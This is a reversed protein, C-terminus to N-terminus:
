IWIRPEIVLKCALPTTSPHFSSCLLASCVGLWTLSQTFQVMIKTMRMQTWIWSISLLLPNSEKHGQPSSIKKFVEKRPLLVPACVHPSIEKSWGAVTLADVYMVHLVRARILLHPHLYAPLCFSCCCASRLSHTYSRYFRRFNKLLRRAAMSGDFTWAKQLILQMYIAPLYYLAMRSWGVLVLMLNIIIM